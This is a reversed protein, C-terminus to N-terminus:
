IYGKSTLGQVARVGTLLVRKWTALSSGYDEALFRCSPDKHEM